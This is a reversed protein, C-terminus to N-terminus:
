FLSGAGGGGRSDFRKPQRPCHSEAKDLCTCDAHLRVYLDTYLRYARDHTM